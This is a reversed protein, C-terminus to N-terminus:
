TDRQERWLGLKTQTIRDSASFLVSEEHAAISHPYWCPVTFIDRPKYDFSVSAEPPGITVRGTGEAVCFLLGETTRYRAGTFGAPLLQLCASITPLAPGGSMPDAYEMKLGHCPDYDNRRGLRDLTERAQAYGYHMPLALGQAATGIPRMNMGYRHISDGIPRRDGFRHEPYHEAFRPGLARVTPLDLVDLWVAPVDGQHVHDHWTWAPNLIFDGFAMYFREGEVATYARDCELIFRLAAPSHRHSPAVEGPMILQLGAFLTETVSSQGALGPNELVLVRREAEDEGILQASEILMPRLADYDWHHPLSAVRPEPPLLDGIREWLPILHREGIRAYYRERTRDAPKTASDSISTIRASSAPILSRTERSYLWLGWVMCRILAATARPFM